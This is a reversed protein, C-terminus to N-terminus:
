QSVGHCDGPIVCSPGSWVGETKSSTGQHTKAARYNRGGKLTGDVGTMAETTWQLFVRTLQTSSQKSSMVIKKKLNNENVVANELEDINIAQKMSRSEVRTNEVLPFHSQSHKRLEETKKRTVPPASTRMSKIMSSRGEEFDDVHDHSM